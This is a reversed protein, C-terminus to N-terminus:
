LPDDIYLKEFLVTSAKFMLASVAGIILASAPDVNNCSATGAVCGSMIAGVIASLDFKLTVNQSQSQKELRLM